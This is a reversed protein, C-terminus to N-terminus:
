TRRGEGWIAHWLIEIISLSWGTHSRVPEECLDITGALQEHRGFFFRSGDDSELLDVPRRVPRLGM